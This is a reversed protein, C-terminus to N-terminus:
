PNRDSGVWTSNMSKSLTPPIARAAPRSTSDRYENGNGRRAPDIKLYLSNTVTARLRIEQVIPRGSWIRAMATQGSQWPDSCHVPSDARHSAHAVANGTTSAIGRKRGGSLAGIRASAKWAASIALAPRVARARFRPRLTILLSYM